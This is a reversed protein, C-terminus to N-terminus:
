IGFYAKLLPIAEVPHTIIHDPHAAKLKDAETSGWLCGVSVIGAAKSAIIDKARDGFSVVTENGCAIMRLAKHMPEASPKDTSDEKGVIGDCEIDSYHLVRRCYEHPSTSVVALKIDHERLFKLLEPIGDYIKFQAIKKEAEVWQEEKLEGSAATTDVLTEDLDFIVGM